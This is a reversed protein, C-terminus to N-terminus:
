ASDVIGRDTFKYDGGIVLLQDGDFSVCLLPRAKKSFKHFYKEKVGDRVAEYAIGELEGIVVAVDPIEPKEVRGVEEGEHGSFENYLNLAKEIEHTANKTEKFLPSPNNKMRRVGPATLYLPLAGQPHRKFFAERAVRLAITVALSRPKGAHILEAVNSSITKQSYGFKLM